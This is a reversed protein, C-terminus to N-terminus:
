NCPETNEVSAVLGGRVRTVVDNEEDAIIETEGGPARFIIYHGIDDPEKETVNGQPFRRKVEQLTMGVRIGVVNPADYHLDARTVRGGEVFFIVNPYRTFDVFECNPDRGTNRHAPIGAVKEADKLSMGFHIFGYGKFSLRDPPAAALTATGVAAALVIIVNAARRVREM